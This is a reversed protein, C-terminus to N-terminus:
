GLVADLTDYLAPTSAVIRNGDSLTTGSLYDNTRAGAALAVALGGLCDWSNIHPEVYGLLRGSAVYCLTLAGSGNRYFMGGQRLLRDFVPLIDDAGVRSSYGVSVIGDTLARGAHPAIPQGNLLAQRGRGGEFLEDLPPNYVFGFQLEGRHVYAVSVCWSPMGSVFPQTGDIPDVVWIGEADAVEDLGTEEGLFGDASFQELGKKILLEVELDAQTVVDQVGKSRVELGALSQSYRAALAGARLALERAAEYREALPGGTTSVAEV